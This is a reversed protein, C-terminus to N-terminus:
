YTVSHSTFIACLPSILFKYLVAVLFGPILSCKSSKHAPPFTINFHIMLFLNHFIHVPHIQSYPSIPPGQSYSFVSWLWYSTAYGQVVCLNELHVSSNLQLLHEHKQHTEPLVWNWNQTPFHSDHSMFKHKDESGGASVLATCLIIGHRRGDM